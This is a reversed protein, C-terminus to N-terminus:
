FNNPGKRYQANSLNLKDLVIKSKGSHQQSAVLQLLNDLQSGEVTFDIHDASLYSVLTLANRDNKLDKLIKEIIRDALTLEHYADQIKTFKEPFYEPPYRRVFRVYARHLTEKDDGPAVKLLKLASRFM